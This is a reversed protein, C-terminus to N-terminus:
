GARSTTRSVNTSLSDNEHAWFRAESGFLQAMIEGTNPDEINIEVLAHSPHEQVFSRIREMHAQHWEILDERNPSQPGTKCKALREALSRGGGGWNRVSTAWHTMNRMSLILTANPAEEHLQELNTIQPFHCQGWNEVDM